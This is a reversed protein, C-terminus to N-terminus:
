KKDVSKIYCLIANAIKTIMVEVRQKSMRLKKGIEEFTKEELVRMKFAKVFIKSKFKRLIYKEYFDYDINGLQKYLDRNLTNKYYSDYFLNENNLIIAEGQSPLENYNEDTIDDDGQELIEPEDEENYNNKVRLCRIDEPTFKRLEKLIIDIEKGRIIGTSYVKNLLSRRIQNMRKWGVAMSLHAKLNFTPNEEWERYKKLAEVQAEQILDEYTISYVTFLTRYCKYYRKAISSAFALCDTLLTDSM